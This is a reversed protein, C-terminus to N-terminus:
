QGLLVEKLRLQSLPFEPIAIGPRYVLRGRGYGIPMVAAVSKILIKEAAQYLDIRKEPDLIGSARDVLQDFNTVGCKLPLFGRQSHFLYRLMADPDPYDATFGMISLHPPDQDRRQVFAEWPINEANVRIGLEGEWANCLYDIVPDHLDPGTFLFEVQPFGKGGSFGASSLLRRAREPNYALALDPQHGPMGPPLFGGLAPQYQGQSTQAVLEERDVAHVFAQRVIVSDFPPRECCFTVFFTTPHHIFKLESGFRRRAQRVTKPDSTIM